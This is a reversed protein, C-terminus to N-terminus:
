FHSFIMSISPNKAASYSVMKVFDRVENLFSNKMNYYDATNGCFGNLGSFVFDLADIVERSEPVSWISEHLDLSFSIKLNTSINEM